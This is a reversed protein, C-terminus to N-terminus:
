SWAQLFDMSLSEHDLALPDCQGHSLEVFLKRM